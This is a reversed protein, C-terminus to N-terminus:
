ITKEPLEIWSGIKEDWEPPDFPVLGSWHFFTIEGFYIEGNVDYFDIRCQPIGAAIIEALRRMNEFNEPKSPPVDANPHGNTFDLHNFDMDFFDFKTEVGETFRDSAIFMMKAEGGFCFFKYDRLESTKRDEMYKEAIIRKPVDKYPWERHVYYYSFNIRRNIIKRAAAVDFTAKDKCIVVTGSDHTCKLVFQDPLSDFDIDDFSNWVGLTPIIYEDGILGAVYEKAAYKDVMTTYEPRRDYLKLWQLKENFTKPNNLDLKKGFKLRYKIKLYQEDPMGYCLRSQLIRLPIISPNKIIRLLKKLM